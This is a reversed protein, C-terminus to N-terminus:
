CHVCSSCRQKLQHRNRLFIPSNWVPRWPWRCREQMMHQCCFGAALDQGSGWRVRTDWASVVNSSTVQALAAAGHHLGKHSGQQMRTVASQRARSSSALGPYKTDARRSCQLQPQLAILTAAAFSSLKMACMFRVFMHLFCGM